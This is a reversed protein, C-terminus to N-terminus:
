RERVPSFRLFRPVCYASKKLMTNFCATALCACTSVCIKTDAGQLKADAACSPQWSGFIWTKEQTVHDSDRLVIHNSLDCIGFSWWTGAPAVLAIRYYAITDPSQLEFDGHWQATAPVLPVEFESDLRSAGPDVWARCSADRAGDGELMICFRYSLM